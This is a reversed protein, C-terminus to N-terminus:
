KLAKWDKVGVPETPEDYRLVTGRLSDLLVKQKYPVIQVVPKGAHTIVLPQKKKEVERLYQLVQSKFQAKSITSQMVISM